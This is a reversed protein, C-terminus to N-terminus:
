AKKGMRFRTKYLERRCINKGVINLSIPLSRLFVIFDKKTESENNTQAEIVYFTCNLKKKLLMFLCTNVLQM